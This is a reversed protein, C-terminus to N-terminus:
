ESRLRLRLRLIGQFTAINPPDKSESRESLIVSFLALEKDTALLEFINHFFAAQGDMKFLVGNTCRNNKSVFAHEGFEESTLPIRKGNLM